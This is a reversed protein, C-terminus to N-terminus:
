VGARTSSCVPTFAARMSRSARSSAPFAGAATSIPPVATAWVLPRNWAIATLARLARSPPTPAGPPRVTGAPRTAGAGPAVSTSVSFAAGLTSSSSSALGTNPAGGAHFTVSSRFPTGKMALKPDNTSSVLAQASRIRGSWENRSDHTSAAGASPTPAARTAPGTIRGRCSVREIGSTSSSTDRRNAVGM